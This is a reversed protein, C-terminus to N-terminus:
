DTSVTTTEVTVQFGAAILAQGIRQADAGTAHGALLLSMYTRRGSNYVRVGPFGEKKLTARFTERDTNTLVRRASIQLSRGVLFPHTGPSGLFREGVLSFRSDRRLLALVKGQRKNPLSKANARRLEFVSACSFSGCLPQGDKLTLGFRRATKRLSKRMTQRRAEISAKQAQSAGRYQLLKTIVVIRTPAYARPESAIFIHPESTAVLALPTMQEAGGLRVRTSLYGPAEIRVPSNPTVDAWADIDYRGPATESFPVGAVVVTAGVLPTGNRRQLVLRRKVQQGVPFPTLGVNRSQLHSELWGAVRRGCRDSKRLLKQSHSRLAATLELHQARAEAVPRMAALDRVYVGTFWGMLCDRLGEDAVTKLASAAQSFLTTQFRDRKASGGRFLLFREVPLYRSLAEFRLRQRGEAKPLRTKIAAIEAAWNVSSYRSEIGKIAEPIHCGGFFHSSGSPCFTHVSPPASAMATPLLSALAVLSILRFM